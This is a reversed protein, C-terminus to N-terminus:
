IASVVCCLERAMVDAFKDPYEALLRTKLSRRGINPAGSSVNSVDIAIM